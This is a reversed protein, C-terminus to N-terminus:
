TRRQSILRMLTRTVSELVVGQVLILGLAVFAYAVPRQAHLGAIWDGVFRLVLLFYGIVFVAYILLELAFEKWIARRGRSM